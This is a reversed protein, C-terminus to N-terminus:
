RKFASAGETTLTMKPVGQADPKIVIFDPTQFAAAPIFKGQEAYQDLIEAANTGLYDSLIEALFDFHELLDRDTGYTYDLLDSMFNHLTQQNNTKKRIACDLYLALICGRRYPVDEYEPKKFYFREMTENPIEGNPDTYHAALFRGNLESQFAETTMFGAKWRNRLAYYDTFGEALWRLGKGADHDFTGTNIKGGIWDHMMEHNFLQIFPDLLCDSAAYVVFSQYMGYGLCRGTRAAGVVRGGKPLVFPIMTVSYFPIDTDDWTTRQTEITKTMMDLLTQDSFLWEGRVAFAIPKGLAEGHLIRFDGAVWMTRRWETSTSKFQQTTKESGLSNQIKWDKPLDEWVVTVDFLRYHRPVLFLCEGPVHMYDRLIIPSCSTEVTVQEGPFNQILEYKLKLPSDGKSIVLLHTSDQRIYRGGEVKFNKYCRHLGESWNMRTPLTFRTTDTISPYFALEVELKLKGGANSKDTSIEYRLTQALSDPASLFLLLPLCFLFCPKM